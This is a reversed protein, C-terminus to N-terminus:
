KPPPLFNIPISMNANVKKGKLRSPKWGILYKVANMAATDCDGRLSKQVAIETPNGLTDVVFKVYCKGSIGDKKATEPYILKESLISHVKSIGGPFECFSTLTDNQGHLLRCSLISFILILHVSM